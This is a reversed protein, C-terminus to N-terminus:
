ETVVEPLGGRARALPLHLRGAERARGQPLEQERGPEKRGPEQRRAGAEQCRGRM